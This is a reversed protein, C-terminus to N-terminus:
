KTRTLVIVLLSLASTIITYTRLMAADNAAAKGKGPQVYLVDGQRLYFYPSQFIDTSNMNFRVMKQRGNEQRALIVNTRKGFISMDGAQGLADLVTAKEGNILYSGPATVEGLVTVKFNVIRVNVIPEKYYTLAKQRIAEKAEATSLGAVKIKGAIPLEITGDSSVLYGPMAERNKEMRSLAPNIAPNATSVDASGMINNMDPDVTQITINLIDNPLIKVDEYAAVAVQVGNRYVYSSDPLDKFYPINRYSACSSLLLCLAVISFLSISQPVNHKATVSRKLKQIFQIPNKM